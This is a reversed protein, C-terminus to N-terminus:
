TKSGQPQGADGSPGYGNLEDLQGYLDDIDAGDRRQQEEVAQVRAQLEGVSKATDRLYRDLTLLYAVVGGAICVLLLVITALLVEQRPFKDERASFMFPHPADPLIGCRAVTACASSFVGALAPTTM